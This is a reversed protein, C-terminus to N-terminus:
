AAGDQGRLFSLNAAVARRFDQFAFCRSCLRHHQAQTACLPTECSACSRVKKEQRSEFQLISM